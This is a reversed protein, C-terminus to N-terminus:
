IEYITFYDFNIYLLLFVISYGLWMVRWEKESDVASLFILYCFLLGIILHVIELIFQVIDLM